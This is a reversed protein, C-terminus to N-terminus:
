RGTADVLCRDSMELFRETWSRTCIRRFLSCIHRNAEVLATTWSPVRRKRGDRDIWWWLRWSCRVDAPVFCADGDGPRLGLRCVGIDREAVVDIRRAVQRGAQGLMWELLRGEDVLPDFPTGF